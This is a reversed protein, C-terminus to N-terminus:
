STSGAHVSCRECSPFQASRPCVRCSPCINVRSDPGKGVPAVDAASAGECLSSLLDGGFYDNPTEGDPVAVGPRSFPISSGCQGCINTGWKSRCDRCECVFTGNTRAEFTTQSVGHGPYVPCRLLSDFFDTAIALSSIWGAPRRKGLETLRPLVESLPSTFVLQRGDLHAGALDEIEKRDDQNADGFEIRIPYALIAPASLHWRLFRTVHELSDILLPTAPILAWTQTTDVSDLGTHSILDLSRRGISSLEGSDIPHLIAISGLDPAHDKIWDDLMHAASLPNAQESQLLPSALSVLRIVRVGTVDSVSLNTAGESADFSIRSNGLIYADESPNFRYGLWDLAKATLIETLANMGHRSLDPDDLRQREKTADEQADLWLRWLPPIRRYRHDRRLVNTIKLSHVRSRTGTSVFLPSRELSALKVLISELQEVTDELMAITVDVDQSDFSVKLREQRWYWGSFLVFRGQTNKTLQSRLHLLRRNLHSIAGVILTRAARNEYLDLEDERVSALIERPIPFDPAWREWQESHGALQQAAGRAPRRVRGVPQVTEQYRLDQLPRRCIQVLQDAEAHLAKEFETLEYLNGIDRSVHATTLRRSSDSEGRVGRSVWDELVEAIAGRTALSALQEVGLSPETPSDNRNIQHDVFGLLAPEDGRATQRTLLNTVLVSEDNM